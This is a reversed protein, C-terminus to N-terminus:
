TNRKYELDGLARTLNLNDNVRGDSVYGGAKHIRNKEIENEPKHDTSLPIVEEDKTFMISRADGANAVYYKDQTILVVNATCGALSNLMDEEVKFKKLINPGDDSMLIEDMKLFNEELAKKYNKNKYNENKLLEPGFYEACFKAVEPGGHGDFVAFLSVGNEFNVNAIHADEM